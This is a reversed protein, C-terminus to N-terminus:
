CCFAKGLIVYLQLDMDKGGMRRQLDVYATSRQTRQNGFKFTIPRDHPLETIKLQAKSMAIGHDKLIGEGVM